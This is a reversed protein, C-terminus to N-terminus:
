MLRKPRLLLLRKEKKKLCNTALNSWMRSSFAEIAVDDVFVRFDTRPSSGSVLFASFSAERETLSGTASNLDVAFLHVWFPWRRGEPVLRHLVNYQSAGPKCYYLKMVWLSMGLLLVSPVTVSAEIASPRLVVIGYIGSMSAPLLACGPCGTQALAYQRRM